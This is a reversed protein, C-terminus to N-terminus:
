GAGSGLGLRSCMEAAALATDDIPSVNWTELRGQFRRIRGDGVLGNLFLGIRRSKGPLEAFLIPASTAAAESIMSVSDMTPIIADALGLMGFYPNEGVGDWIWGGLPALAETLLRTVSPDTRRSPTVMIGLKDRRVMEALQGALRGGTAADLRFRGNSGGVLVAVLPRPLHAFRERWNEAAAALRVPTARHLACRTVIVNRGTLEDHRNVIVLDFRDPSVSPRQVQVVRQGRRRLAAGVVSAMGGCGIVLDPMPPALLGPPLAALPAPWLTEPLFKWPPRAVLARLEPTLGAAEALGLAQAQLGAYDESLIWATPPSSMMIGSNDVRRGFEDIPSEDIPPPIERLAEGSVPRRRTGCQWSPPKTTAASCHDRVCDGEM